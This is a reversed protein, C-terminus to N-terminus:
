CCRNPGNWKRQQEAIYFSRRDLPPGDAPGHERRWHELYRQYADEGTLRQIFHWVSRLRQKMIM